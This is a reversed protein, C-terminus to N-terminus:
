VGRMLFPSGIQVLGFIFDHPHRIHDFRSALAAGANIGFDILALEGPLDPESLSRDSEGPALDMNVDAGHDVTDFILWFLVGRRRSSPTGRNYGFPKAALEM